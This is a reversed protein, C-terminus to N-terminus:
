RKRTALFPITKAKECNFDEYWTEDPIVISGKIKRIVSLISQDHRNDIFTLSQKYNNYYDTILKHDQKLVSFFDRFINLVNECKKMILIGGVYQGTKKIENPANTSLFIQSTTYQEEPFEMQFSIIGNNNKDEEILKIYEEFRQKGNSNISCGSDCYILYDNDNIELLRKLVFYEKWIWYGGGKSQQLIDSYTKKFQDSLDYQSYINITEFMGFDIAEKKIREKANNYKNDGYSIFHINKTM